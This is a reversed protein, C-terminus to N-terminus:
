PWKCLTGASGLVVPLLVVDYGEVALMKCLEAQQEQKKMAKDMYRTDSSYGLQFLWIKRPRGNIQTPIKTDM